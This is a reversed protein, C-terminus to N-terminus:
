PAKREIITVTGDDQIEIKDGDQVTNLFEDGLQDIAYIRKDAWIDAVILGCAAVSDIRESFLMAKPASNLQAIRHWVAGGSTSGITKPLCIIKDTLVKEFLEENNADFCTATKSQAHMSTYFSAVTNFGKHTVLAEGKLNGPLIPRGKFSKSM